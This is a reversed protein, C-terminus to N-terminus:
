LKDVAELLRHSAEAIEQKIASKFREIREDTQDPSLYGALKLLEMETFGLPEAMKNLVGASAQREDRELRGLYSTHVGTRGSLEKLTMGKELRRAKLIEGFSKANM